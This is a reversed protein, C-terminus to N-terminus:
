IMDAKLAYKSPLKNVLVCYPMNDFVVVLTHPINPILKEKEKSCHWAEPLHYCTQWWRFDSSWGLDTWTLYTTSIMSSYIKFSALANYYRHHHNKKWGTRLILAKWRATVTVTYQDQKTFLRLWRCCLVKQVLMFLLWGTEQVAMQWSQSEDINSQQRGLDWRLYIYIYLFVSWWMFIWKIYTVVNDSMLLHDLLNTRMSQNEEWRFGIKHLTIRLFHKGM